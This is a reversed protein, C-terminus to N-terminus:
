QVVIRRDTVTLRHKAMADNTLMNKHM